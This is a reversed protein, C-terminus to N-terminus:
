KREEGPNDPLIIGAARYAAREAENLPRSPRGACGSRLNPIASWGWGTLLRLLSSSRPWAILATPRTIDFCRRIIANYDDNVWPESWQIDGSESVVDISPFEVQKNVYLFRGVGWRKAVKVAHALPTNQAMIANCRFDYVGEGNGTYLLFMVKHQSRRGVDGYFEGRDDLYPPHLLICWAHTTSHHHLEALEVHTVQTIEEATRAQCWAKARALEKDMVFKVRPHVSSSVQAGGEV